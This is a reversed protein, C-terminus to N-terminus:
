KFLLLGGIVGATVGTGLGIGFWMPSRNKKVKVVLNTKDIRVYKNSHTEELVLESKLNLFGSKREGIIQHVTDPFQLNTIMFDKKTLLYNFSYYKDKILDKKVFDACPLTDHYHVQITDVYVGMNKSVLAVLDGYKKTLMKLKEDSEAYKKMQEANLKTAETIYSLQGLKNEIVKTKVSDKKLWQNFLYDADGSKNLYGRFLLFIVILLLISILCLFFKVPRPTNAWSSRVENKIEENPTM